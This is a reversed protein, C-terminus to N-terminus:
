NLLTAINLVIVLFTMGDGKSTFIFHVEVAFIRAVGKVDSFQPLIESKKAGIFIIHPTPPINSHNKLNLKRDM